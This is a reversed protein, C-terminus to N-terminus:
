LLLVFVGGMVGGFRRQDHGILPIDIIEGAFPPHGHMLQPRATRAVLLPVTFCISCCKLSFPRYLAYKTRFIQQM